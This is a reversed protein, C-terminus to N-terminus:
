WEKTRLKESLKNLSLGERALREDMTAVIEAVGAQNDSTSAAQQIYSIIRMRRQFFKREHGDARWKARYRTELDRIAPQGPLGTEWEQWLERVSTIARSMSHQPVTETTPLVPDVTSTFPQLLEPSSPQPPPLGEAPNHLAHTIAVGVSQFMNAVNDQIRRESDQLFQQMFQQSSQQNAQMSMRLQQFGTTATRQLNQLGQHVQPLVARVKVDFPSTVTTLAQKSSELFCRYEESAFISHQWMSCAAFEDHLVVSDQLIVRRLLKLVRL